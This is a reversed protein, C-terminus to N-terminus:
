EGVKYQEHLLKLQPKHGNALRQEEEQARREEASQEAESTAWQGDRARVRKAHSWEARMATEAVCESRFDAHLAAFEGILEFLRRLQSLLGQVSRLAVGIAALPASCDM